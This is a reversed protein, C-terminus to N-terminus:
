VLSGIMAAVSYVIMGWLIDLTLIKWSWKKFVTAATFNYVGYIMLGFLSGYLISQKIKEVGTSDHDIQKMVFWCLGFVMLSYAAVAPAINANMPISQINRVMRGYQKIMYTRLWVFDLVILVISGVLYNTVEM